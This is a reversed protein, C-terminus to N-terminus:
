DTDFRYGHLDIEDRFANEVANKDLETYHSRFDDSQPRFQSKPSTSLADFPLGAVGFAYRLDAVLSEYKGVFSVIGSQNESYLPYNRADTFEGSRIFEGLTESTTRRNRRHFFMSVVKDWPNREITFSFYSDWTKKGVVERVLIAPMHNFYATGNVCNKPPRGLAASRILEDRLSIETVVDGTGAFKSLEIEIATGAIKRGRIFILRHDHLIITM